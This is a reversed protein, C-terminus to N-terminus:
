FVWKKRPILVTIDWWNRVKDNNKQEVHANDNKKYPRSRSLTFHPPQGTTTQTFLYQLVTPANDPHYKLIEHFIKKTAKEHIGKVSLLSKGLGAARVSWQSFLDVYTGTITFSGSSNGGSHEIYDLEIFGPHKTYNGFDAEIPVQKFISLNGKRKKRGSTFPFGAVTRKVTALSIKKVKWITEKAYTRLKQNKFLQDLYVPIMPYLREACINGSLEWLDKILLSHLKDYTKPRGRTKSIKVPLAKPWIKGMSRHFRQKASLRSVSTLSCYDSLIKGKSRKDSKRYKKILKQTLTMAFNDVM